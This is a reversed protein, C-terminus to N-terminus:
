PRRAWAWPCPRTCRGSGPAPWPPSPPGLGTPLYLAVRDGRGVGLTRFLGALRSSLERVEKYTWKGLRGEGDLTLLAVQQAKEPLHRDLANLAVNTLGGAFWTRDERRFVAKWPREWAFGRAFGEWFAEPDESARGTPPGPTPCTPPAASPRPPDIREM